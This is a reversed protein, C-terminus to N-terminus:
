IRKWKAIVENKMEKETEVKMIIEDIKVIKGIKM